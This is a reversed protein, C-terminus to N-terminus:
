RESPERSAFSFIFPFLIKLRFLTQPVPKKINSFNNSFLKLIKCDKLERHSGLVDSHCLAQARQEANGVATLAM